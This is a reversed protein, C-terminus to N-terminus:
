GCCGVASLDYMHEIDCCIWRRERAVPEVDFVSRGAQASEEGVIADGLYQMAALAIGGNQPVHVPQLHDVDDVGRQAVHYRATRFLLLAQLVREEAPEAVVGRERVLVRDFM